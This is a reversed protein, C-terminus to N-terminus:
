LEKYETIPKLIKYGMSKLFEIAAQERGVAIIADVMKDTSKAASSKAKPSLASNVTGAKVNQKHNFGYSKVIKASNDLEDALRKIDWISRDTFNYLGAPGEVIISAKKLIAPVHIGYPCGKAKLESTLEGFTFDHIVTETIANKVKIVRNESANKEQTTM